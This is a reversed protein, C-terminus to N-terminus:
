TDFLDTLEMKTKTPPKHNIRHIAMNYYNSDLEIGIFDFGELKAAKGTSGSGMFPEMVTGGVPTVLRCFYRM